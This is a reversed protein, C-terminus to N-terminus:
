TRNRLTSPKLKPTPHYRPRRDRKRAMAQKRLPPTNISSTTALRAGSPSHHIPSTPEAASTQIGFDAPTRQEPLREWAPLDSTKQVMQSMQQTESHLQQEFDNIETRIDQATAEIDQKIKAIDKYDAQAALEAKVNSALRQAKGVWEGVTRAVKPLREPGLVVLAVVGALLM